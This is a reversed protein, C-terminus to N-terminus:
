LQCYILMIGLLDPRHLLFAKRKPLPDETIKKVHLIHL